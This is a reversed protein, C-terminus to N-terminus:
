SQDPHDAPDSPLTRPRNRIESLSIRITEHSRRLSDLESSPAPEARRRASREIFHLLAERGKFVLLTDLYELATGRLREDGSELVELTATLQANPYILGLLAFVYRLPAGSSPPRADEERDLLREGARELRKESIELDLVKVIAETQIAARQRAAIKVLAEACRFRVEFRPDHLGEHLGVAARLSDSRALIRPVRRRISFEEEPDLLADILQGVWKDVGSALARAADSSVEDWALLRILHPILTPDWKESSALLRRVRISDGSRLDLVRAVVPDPPLAHQPSVIAGASRIESPTISRMERTSLTRLFVSRTTEDEITEPDLTSDRRLLSRELAAVYGRHLRPALLLCGLSLLVALTLLVPEAAGSAFILIAHIAIAGIGEGARDFGVDVLTKATRKLRTSIPTYFLEYSSRFISSRLTMEIGRAISITGLGPAIAAVLSAVATVAPLSAATNALGWKQLLRRTFLAQAALTVISMGMYFVAFFRLLDNGNPLTAQARAKLVYDLLVASVAVGTVLAALSRLYPERLVMTLADQGELAAPEVAEHAVGDRSDGMRRTFVAAIAHLAALVPFITSIPLMAGMREALIGGAIGGCSGAFVIPGIKRKATRPDFRETVMAWFWSVLVSGTIALLFYLGIAAAGPSIVAVRWFGLLLASSCFLGIQVLRAPGHHAIFRTLLLMTGLAVIASAIIMRPLLSADFNSLFLADRVSRGAIHNAIIAFAAFAAARGALDDSHSSSRAASVM